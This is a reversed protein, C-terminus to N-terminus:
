GAREVMKDLWTKVKVLDHFIHTERLHDDEDQESFHREEDDWMYDIIKQISNIPADGM